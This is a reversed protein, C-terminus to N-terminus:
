RHRMGSSAGRPCIMIIPSVVIYEAFNNAKSPWMNPTGHKDFAAKAAPGILDLARQANPGVAVGAGIEGFSPASEYVHVDIHPEKLLGLALALGGIGGGVIAVSFASPVPSIDSTPNPISSMEDAISWAEPVYTRSSSRWLFNLSIHCDRINPLSYININVFYCSAGVDKIAKRMKYEGLPRAVTGFSARHESLLTAEM